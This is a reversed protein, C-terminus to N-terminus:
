PGAWVADIGQADAQFHVAIAGQQAERFPALLRQRDAGRAVVPLAQVQPKLTAFARHRRGMVAQAALQQVSGIPIIEVFMAQAEEILVLWKPAQGHRVVRRPKGQGATLQDIPATGLAPEFGVCLCRENARDDFFDAPM